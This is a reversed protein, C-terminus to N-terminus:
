FVKYVTGTYIMHSGFVKPDCLLGQKVQCKNIPVARISQGQMKWVTSDLESSESSQNGSFGSGEPWLNQTFASNAKEGVM